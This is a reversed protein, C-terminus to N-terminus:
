TSLWKQQGKFVSPSVRLGSELAVSEAAEKGTFEVGSFLHKVSVKEFKKKNFICPLKVSIVLSLNAEFIPTRTVRAVPSSPRPVPTTPSTATQASSPAM